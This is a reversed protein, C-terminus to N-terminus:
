VSVCVSLYGFLCGSLCAPLCAPLFVSLCLCASVCLCLCVSMIVCNLLTLISKDQLITLYLIRLTLDKYCTVLIYCISMCVSVDAASKGLLQFCSSFPTRKLEEYLQKLSTTDADCRKVVECLWRVLFQM